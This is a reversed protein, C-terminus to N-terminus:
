NYPYQNLRPFAQFNQSYSPKPVEIQMDDNGDFSNRSGFKESLYASSGPIPKDQHRKSTEEDEIDRKRPSRTDGMRLLHGTIACIRVGDVFRIVWANCFDPHCEHVFGTSPSVFVHESMPVWDNVGKRATKVHSPVCTSLIYENFSTNPVSLNMKRCGIGVQRSTNQLLDVFYSYVLAQM